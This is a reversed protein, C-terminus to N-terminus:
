RIKKLRSLFKRKTSLYSLYSVQALIAMLGDSAKRQMRVDLM